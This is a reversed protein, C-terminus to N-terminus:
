AAGRTSAFHGKSGQVYGRKPEISVWLRGLREATAGTTNSGAFPDLVLDGEDTLFRIFFHALEAPMRAPHIPLEHEVCYQRYADNARTNSYTLVNPPIAGGNNALFSTNGIHHQSPREGANYSGRDLLQKMRDSYEILVHKNDAKPRATRSMWWVNTYADKVRVREINVWQVPSPLRARNHVVFQQCLKFGGDQQVRLLAELPLTSMVPEGSEWANGLEIVFSGDPALLDGLPAALRGLWDLYEQGVLNGYRKRRNLPFPPSTFILQVEGKLRRGARSALFTEVSAQYMTGLKTRYARAPPSSKEDTTARRAPM